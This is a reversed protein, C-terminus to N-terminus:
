VVRGFQWGADGYATLCLATLEGRLLLKRRLSTMLDGAAIPQRRNSATALEAMIARAMPAARQGLVSAVTGVVLAAGLDQFRAVFSQLGDTIATECGLLLVIPADEASSRVYVSNLQVALCIENAKGIELAAAEQEETTHSLLVLLTPRQEVGTVWADWTEAYTTQDAILELKKRVSSIGGKKVEDVKSSAAFLAIKPPKLRARGSTPQARVAIEFGEALDGRQWSGAGVVKREIVKSLAWFGSPCITPGLRRPGHGEHSEPCVGTRLAAKWGPCLTADATPVPLDYVLELPFFNSRDDVVVQLRDLERGQLKEVLPKGIEGYLECGQFVLARLDDVADELKRSRAADGTSLRTLIRVLGPLIRELRDDDFLILDRGAVGTTGAPTRVVGADVGDQSVLDASGPVIQALELEIRSGPPVRAADAAVIGHLRAMQIVRNRHHVTIEADFQKLDAPVKVAFTVPGSTGSRPLFISGSQPEASISPAVFTVRLEEMDPVAGLEDDFAKPGAAAIAGEQNPGIAVAIQHVAGARFANQLLRQPEAADTVWVLIWRPEPPPPPPAAGDDLAGADPELALDGDDATAALQPDDPPGAMLMDEILEDDRVARADDVPAAGDGAPTLPPYASSQWNAAATILQASSLADVAMAPGLEAVLNALGARGAAWAIQDCTLQREPDCRRWAELVGEIDPAYPPDLAGALLIADDGVMKESSAEASLRSALLLLESVLLVDFRRRELPAAVDRYLADALKSVLKAQYPDHAPLGKGLAHRVIRREADSYAEHTAPAVTTTEPPEEDAPHVFLDSVLDQVFTSPWKRALEPRVRGPLPEIRLLGTALERGDRPWMDFTEGDDGAVLTESSLHELETALPEARGKSALAVALWFSTRDERGKGVLASWRQELEPAILATDITTLAQAATAASRPDDLLALLPEGARSDGAAALALAARRREKRDGNVALRSLQERASRLPVGAALEILDLHEPASRDELGWKLYDRVAFWVEPELPLRTLARMVAIRTAPSDDHLARILPEVESLGVRDSTSEGASQSL